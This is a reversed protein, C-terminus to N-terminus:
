LFLVNGKRVAVRVAARKIDHAHDPFGFLVKSSREFIIQARHGDKVMIRGGHGSSLFPRVRQPFLVFDGDGLRLEMIFGWSRRKREVRIKRQTVTSALGTANACSSASAAASGAVAASCVTQSVIVPPPGNIMMIQTAIRAVETTITVSITCFMM